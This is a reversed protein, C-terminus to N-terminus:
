VIDLTIVGRLGKETDTLSQANRFRMDDDSRTDSANANKSSRLALRAVMVTPALGSVNMLLTTVYYDWQSLPSEITYTQPIVGAVASLTLIVSYIASSEVIIVLIRTYQSESHLAGNKFASFFMWGILFTTTATTGLSTFQQATAVKNEISAEEPSSILPITAQLVLDAVSLAIEAGYLIIPFAIVKLRRGWVHYCRWILLGDSVIFSASLLASNVTSLWLPASLSEWFISDRSDGHVIFSVNLFYWQLIADTISLLYLLSIAALVVQRSVTSTSKFFLLYVTGGYTVTYIGASNTINIMISLVAKSNPFIGILLNGLMSSNLSAYLIHNEINAPISLDGQSAM